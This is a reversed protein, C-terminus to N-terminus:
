NDLQKILYIPKENQKGCILAKDGKFFNHNTEEQALVSILLYKGDVVVEAQGAETNSAPLTLECTLGVYEIPEEASDFHKFLPLLPTSIIKTLLLSVFLNPFFLALAFLISGGGFYHNAIISIAWCSTILITFIVMFPMKGFNFFHLFGAMWSGGTVVDGDADVDVDIEADVDIDMDLDADLDFDFTSFDLAGIIVFIWYLIALGLLITYVISEPAVAANLLELM